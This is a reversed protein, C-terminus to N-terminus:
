VEFSAEGSRPALKKEIMQQIGAFEVKDM